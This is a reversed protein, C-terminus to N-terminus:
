QQTRVFTHTDGSSQSRLVLKQADVAVVEDTDIKDEEALPLSSETYTWVMLNDKLTWKGAFTWFLKGNVNVTGSFTMDPRVVFLTTMKQDETAKLSGAWAGHILQKDPGAALSAGTFLAAVLSVALLLKKM